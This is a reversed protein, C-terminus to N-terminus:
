IRKIKTRPVYIPSQWSAGVLFSGRGLGRALIVLGAVLVSEGLPLTETKRLTTFFIFCFGKGCLLIEDPNKTLRFEELADTKHINLGGPLM